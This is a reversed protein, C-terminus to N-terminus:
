NLSSLAGSFGVARGDSAVEECPLFVFFGFLLFVVSVGSSSSSGEGAELELTTTTTMM